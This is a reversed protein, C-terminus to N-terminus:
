ARARDGIGLVAHMARLSWQAAAADGHLQRAPNMGAALSELAFAVQEADTDPRLDGDAVAQEIEAVLVRRWRRTFSALADHVRGERGDWEFTAAAIFCGGAFRPSDAYAVWAECIGVLRDLGHERDSAPEWVGERFLEAAFELTALQLMEKTGFHGLLGAKSLGLDSALRGITLGELGEAAAVEAARELIAERTSAADSTSRRGAM